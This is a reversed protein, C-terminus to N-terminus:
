VNFFNWILLRLKCSWSSSFFCVLGLALLLFYIIHITAFIFLLSLLFIISFIMSVLLQNKSFVLFISLVKILHVLLFLLSLHSFDSILSNGGTWHNPRWAKVAPPVPKIGTHPVLISYVIPPPLFYYFSIFYSNSCIRCFHFAHYSYQLFNYVLLVPYDLHFSYIRLFVLGPLVLDCALLFNSYVQRYCTLVSFWYDFIKRCAASNVIAFVHICGLYGNFSLHNLIIHFIYIISSFEAM